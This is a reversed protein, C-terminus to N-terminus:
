WLVANYMLKLVNTNSLVGAFYNGGAFSFHVIKGTGYTRIAIAAEDSAGQHWAIKTAPQSQGGGFLTVPGQNYSTYPMPITGSFGNFIPHAAYVPDIAYIEASTKASYRTLLVMDTMSALRGRDVQYADWESTIFKGGAAVFNKLAIQANTDLDQTYTTGDLMIVTTYQSPQPNTGNYTSRPVLQSRIRFDNLYDVLAMTDPTVVDYIVLVSVGGLVYPARGIGYSGQISGYLPMKCPSAAKLSSTTACKYM